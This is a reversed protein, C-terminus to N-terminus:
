KKHIHFTIIGKHWAFFLAGLVVLVALSILIATKNAKFFSKKVIYDEPNVQAITRNTKADNKSTYWTQGNDKSWFTSPAGPNASVHKVIYTNDDTKRSYDKVVKNTTQKSM